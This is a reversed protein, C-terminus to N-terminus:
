RPRLQAAVTAAVLGALMLLAMPRPTGDALAGVLASGMAACGFQLTGLLASASGARGAHRSLAGVAANPMVLATVALAVVAPLFIGMLGGIGTISAAVMVVVAVTAVLLAAMPV